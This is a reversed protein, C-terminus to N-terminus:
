NQYFSLFFFFYITSSTTGTFVQKPFVWMHMCAVTNQSYSLSLSITISFYFLNHNIVTHYELTYCKIDVMSNNCFWVYVRVTVLKYAIILFFPLTSSVLLVLFLLSGLFISSFKIINHQSSLVQLEFTSQIHAHYRYYEHSFIIFQWSVQLRLWSWNSKAIQHTHPLPLSLANQLHKVRKTQMTIELKDM